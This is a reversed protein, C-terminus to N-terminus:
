CFECQWIHVTIICKVSQFSTLNVTTEVYRVSFITNKENEEMKECKKTKKKLYKETKELQGGM